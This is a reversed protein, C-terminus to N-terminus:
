RHNVGVSYLLHYNNYFGVVTAVAVVLVIHLMPTSFKTHSHQIRSTRHRFILVSVPWRSLLGKVTKRMGEFYIGLYFRTIEWNLMAGLLHMLRPPIDGCIRQALYIYTAVEREPRELGLPFVRLVTQLDPRSSGLIPAGTSFIKLDTERRFPFYIRQWNQGYSLNYRLGNDSGEM